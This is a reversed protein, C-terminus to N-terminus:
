ARRWRENQALILSETQNRLAPARPKRCCGPIFVWGSGVLRGAWKSKNPSQFQRELIGDPQIGIGKDFIKRGRVRPFAEGCFCGECVM